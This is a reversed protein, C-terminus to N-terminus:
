KNKREHKVKKDKYEVACKGEILRKADKKSAWITQGKNFHFVQGDLEFNGEFLFEIKIM